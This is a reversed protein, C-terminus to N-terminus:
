QAKRKARMVLSAVMLTMMKATMVDMWMMTSNCIINSSWVHELSREKCSGDGRVEGGATKMPESVM